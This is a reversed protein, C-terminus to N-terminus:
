AEPPTIGMSKEQLVCEVDARLAYESLAGGESFDITKSSSAKLKARSKAGDAQM